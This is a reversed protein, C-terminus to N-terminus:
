IILRRRCAIGAICRIRKLRRRIRDSAAFSRLRKTRLTEDSYKLFTDVRGEAWWKLNLPILQEAQDVAHSENLFFNNDYFQVADIGYTQQLHKLAHATREGSEVKQRGDFM